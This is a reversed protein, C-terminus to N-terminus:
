YNKKFTSKLLILTSKLAVLHNLILSANILHEM